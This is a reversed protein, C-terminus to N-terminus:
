EHTVPTDDAVEMVTAVVEENADAVEQTEVLEQDVSSAVIEEEKTHDLEEEQEIAREEGIMELIRDTLIKNEARIQLMMQIKKVLITLGAAALQEEPTLQRARKKIVATLIPRLLMLDEEDLKIRNVNKENQVEIIQIIEEFEYFEKHKSIRVFFGGGVALLNNASGLLADAAQEAGATPLEFDSVEKEQHIQEEGIEQEPADLPESGSYDAGYNTNAEQKPTDKKIQTGAIDKEKVAQNLPSSQENPVDELSISEDEKELVEKVEGEIESM